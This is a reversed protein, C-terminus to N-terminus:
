QHFEYYVVFSFVIVFICFSQSKAQLEIETKLYDDSVRNLRADGRVYHVPECMLNFNPIDLM